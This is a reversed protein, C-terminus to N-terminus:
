LKIGLAHAYKHDLEDFEPVFDVDRTYAKVQDAAKSYFSESDPRPYDKVWTYGDPMMRYGHDLMTQDHSSLIPADNCSLLPCSAFHGKHAGCDSCPLGNSQRDSQFRYRDMM